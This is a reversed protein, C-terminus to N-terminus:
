AIGINIDPKHIIVHSIRGDDGGVTEKTISLM